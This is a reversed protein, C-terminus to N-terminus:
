KRENATVLIDVLKKLTTELDAIREKLDDIEYGDEEIKGIMECLKSAYWDELAQCRKRLEEVPDEFINLPGTGIYASHGSGLSIVPQSSLTGVWGGL